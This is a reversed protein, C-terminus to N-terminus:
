TEAVTEAQAHASAQTHATCVVDLDLEDVCPKLSGLFSDGGGNSPIATLTLGVM